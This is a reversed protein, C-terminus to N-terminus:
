TSVIMLLRQSKTHVFFSVDVFEALEDAADDQEEVGSSAPPSPKIEKKRRTQRKRQPKAPVIKSRAILPELICDRLIDLNADRVQTM